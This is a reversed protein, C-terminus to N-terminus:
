RDFQDLYCKVLRGAVGDLDEESVEDTESFDDTSFEYRREAGLPVMADIIM